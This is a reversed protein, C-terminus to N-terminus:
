CVQEGGSLMIQFGGVIIMLVSLGAAVGIAWPIFARLYVNFFELPFGSTFTIENVDGIPQLLTIPKQAYAAAPALLLAFATGLLTPSLRYRTHKHKM